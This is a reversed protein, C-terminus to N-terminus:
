RIINQFKKNEQIIYSYLYLANIHHLIIVIDKNSKFVEIYVCLVLFM